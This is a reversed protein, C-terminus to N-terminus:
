KERKTWVLKLEACNTTFVDESDNLLTSGDEGDAFTVDFELVLKSIVTRLENLALQKGICGFKGNSFPLFADKKLVLEPQTSWREPIFENPNVYARPSRHVSYIPIIVNVGAPLQQGNITAGEAGTQRYLGGSVPPHLRLTENIVGNLYPLYQLATINLSDNNEVKHENLEARLKAVLTPDRSLHYFCHTFTASTTDSGAVILLRSDGMLLDRELNPDDFFNGAEFIHSMVDPEKPEYKKREEVCKDSYLLLRGQPNMSKPILKIIVHVIWGAAGTVGLIRPSDRVMDIYFHSKGTALANFSRGFALDGMFDFAFYGLWKSANVVQGSREAIQDVLQDAYHIIRSDYGRLSKTTFAKDWGHRRRQDHLRKDRMQHISTMPKGGDYWEAKEFTSQAGHVPMVMDPDSISLLNPGIRVYEGHKAHLRDRQRFHDLKKAAWLIPVFQSVRSAVPGPFNRLPHFFLRYIGISTFLAAFFSGYSVALTVIAASLTFEFYQVLAVIILPPGCATSVVYSPAHLIHDGHIFWALHSSVGLLGSALAVFNLSFEM